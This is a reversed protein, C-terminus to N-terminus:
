NMAIMINLLLVIINKLPLLIIITSDNYKIISCYYKKFAIFNNNHKGKESFYYAFDHHSDLIGLIWLQIDM